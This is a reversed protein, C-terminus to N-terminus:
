NPKASVQLAKAAESFKKIELEFGSIGPADLNPLRVSSHGNRQLRGFITWYTTVATIVRDVEKQIEPPLPSSRQDITADYLNIWDKLRNGADNALLHALDSRSTALWLVSNNTPQAGTLTVSFEAEHRLIALAAQPVGWSVLADKANGCDHSDILAYRMLEPAAEYRHETGLLSAADNALIPSPHSRLLSSLRQATLAKDRESLMRICNERYDTEFFNDEHPHSWDASELANWVALDDGANRRTQLYWIAQNRQIPFDYRVSMRAFSYILLHFSLLFWGASALLMGGAIKWSRPTPAANSKMEVLEIAKWTLSALLLWRCIYSLSIVSNGGHWISIPVLRSFFFSISPVLFAVTGCMIFIRALEGSTRRRRTVWCAMGAFPAEWCIDRYPYGIWSSLDTLDVAFAAGALALMLLGRRWNLQQISAPLFLAAFPLLLQARWEIWSQLFAPLYQRFGASYPILALVMLGIAIRWTPQSTLWRASRVKFPHPVTQYPLPAPAIPETMDWM